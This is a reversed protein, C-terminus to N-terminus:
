FSKQGIQIVETEIGIEGRLQIFPHVDWPCVVSQGRSTDFRGGRWIKLTLLGPTLELIVIDDKQSMSTLNFSYYGKITITPSSGNQGIPTFISREVCGASLWASGRRIVHIKWATAFRLPEISITQNNEHTSTEIHNDTEFKLNKSSAPIDWRIERDRCSEFILLLLERHLVKHTAGKDHHHALLFFCVSKGSIM